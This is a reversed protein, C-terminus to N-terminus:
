PESSSGAPVPYVVAASERGSRDVGRVHLTPTGPRRWVDRPIEWASAGADLREAAAPFGRERPALEVWSGPARIGLRDGDLRPPASGRAVAALPADPVPQPRADARGALSLAARVAAGYHRRRFRQEAEAFWRAAAPERFSSQAHWHAARAAPVHVSRGGNRKLRLLWDTEEFYLRYGEDFPGIRTWADRRFALLAGSLSISPSPLKALWHRQAHRRWRRRASREIAGFRGALVGLLEATATREETPPLHIRDAADWFFAPGAADAGSELEGALLGLCGRRVEVDPNMAVLFPAESAAVGRAVGGAYGSNGGADIRRLPLARWAARDVEDSGNDVLLIEADLGSAACDDLLAAVAPAVLGPTRYHVLIVALSRM